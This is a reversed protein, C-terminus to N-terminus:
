RDEREACLEGLLARAELYAHYRRQGEACPHGYYQSARRYKRRMDERTRVIMEELEDDDLDSPTIFSPYFARRGM